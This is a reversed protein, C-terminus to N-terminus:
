PNDSYITQRWIVRDRDDEKTVGVSQIDEVVKMLSEKVVDMWGYIELAGAQCSWMTSSM